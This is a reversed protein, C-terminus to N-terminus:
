WADTRFPVAPFDDANYLNCVPNDAWAYRVSVPDKVSPSWVVASDGDITALAWYFKKDAGAIAFGSPGSGVSKLGNAHDFTIRVRGNEVAMSKYTPGECPVNLGYTKALALAALRNGVDRKNPPHINYVEGRDIAVALGCNPVKAAVTAQCERTIGWSSTKPDCAIDSHPGFGALQVIYFPLDGQGFTARWDRIMDTLEVAYTSQGGNGEGQYWLFGKVAFPALPAIMGQYLSAGTWIRDFQRRRGTLQSGPTSAKYKWTGTLTVPPEDSTDCTLKMQDPKGNLGRDGQIRVTIVNDGAKVLSGPVTYKHENRYGDQGGVFTGNFWGASQEFVYGLNVTLDKGAWSAPVTVHRRFWVVGSFGALATSQWDKPTEMEAWASDDFAPQRWADTQAYAPDNAKNTEAVKTAYDTFADMTPSYKPSRRLSAVTSWPQISTNGQASEILGVPVGTKRFVSRGFFWGVASFGGSDYQDRKRLTDSTAVTWAGTVTSAPTFAATTTIPFLRISGEAASPMENWWQDVGAMGFDMNSQGSCIWVDGYLVNKLTVTKPGTITITHTGGTPKAALKVLWKGDAAATTSVTDNDVTVDVKAGPTTWGWIPCPVDRQLVMNDTFLSHVFPLAATASRPTMALLTVALAALLLTRIKLSM